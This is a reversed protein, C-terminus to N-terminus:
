SKNQGSPRRAWVSATSIDATSPPRSAGMNKLPFATDQMSLQTERWSAGVDTGHFVAVVLEGPHDVM